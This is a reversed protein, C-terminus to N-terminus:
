WGFKLIRLKIEQKYIILYVPIHLFISIVGFFLLNVLSRIM